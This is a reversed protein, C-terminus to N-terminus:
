GSDILEQRRAALVDVDGPPILHGNDGEDILERVGGVNSAVVPLGARLKEILSIPLGEYHSILVGIHSRSLIEAVDHRTGAFEVKKELGLSKCLGMSRKLLPGDGIFTIFFDGKLLAAARLLQNQDKQSSFRATMTIHVTGGSNPRSMLDAPVDHAGNRIVVLKASDAIHYKKGLEM